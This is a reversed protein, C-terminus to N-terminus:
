SGARWAEVQELVRAMARVADTDTVEFHRVYSASGGVAMRAHFRYYQGEAGWTELL